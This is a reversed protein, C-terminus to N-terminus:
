RNKIMDKTLRAAAIQFYKPTIYYSRRVDQQLGVFNAIVQLM